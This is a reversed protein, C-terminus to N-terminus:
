FVYSCTEDHIITQYFYGNTDLFQKVEDNYNDYFFDIDRALVWLSISSPTTIISYQYQNNIVDGLRVIWYPANFPVDDLSVTLKGPESSNKYYAYGSIQELEGKENIQTNLVSVDEDDIMGYQATICEGYGQFIINTPSGYIQYWNGLYKKLELEDVTTPQHLLNIKNNKKLGSVFRNKFFFFFIIFFINKLFYM